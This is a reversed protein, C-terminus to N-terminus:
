ETHPLKKYEDSINRGTRMEWDYVWKALDIFYQEIEKERYNKLKYDLDNEDPSKKKFLSTILSIIGMVLAITACSVFLSLAMIIFIDWSLLENFWQYYVMDLIILAAILLGNHWSSKRESDHIASRASLYKSHIVDYRNAEFRTYDDFVPQTPDILMNSGRPQILWFTVKKFSDFFSLEIKGKLEGTSMDFSVSHGYRFLTLKDRIVDVSISAYECPVVQGNATSAIGYLYDKQIKLWQQIDKRTSSNENSEETPSLPGIEFRSISDFECPLLVKGRENIAGFLGNQKIILVVARDTKLFSIREYKFPVVINDNINVIGFLGDFNQCLKLDEYKSILTYEEETDRITISYLDNM